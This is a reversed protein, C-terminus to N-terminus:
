CDMMEGTALYHDILAFLDPPQQDASTELRGLFEEAEPTLATWRRTMVLECGNRLPKFDWEIQYVIKDNMASYQIRKFPEYVNNVWTAPGMLHPMERTTFVCGLEAGSSESYVIRRKDRWGPLWDDEKLPCGLKFIDECSHNFRHNHSVMFRKKREGM